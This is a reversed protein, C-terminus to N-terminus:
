RVLGDSVLAAPRAGGLRGHLDYAAAETLSAVYDVVARLRVQAQDYPEAQGTADHQAVRVYSLLRAPLERERRRARKARKAADEVLAPDNGAVWDSLWTVLDRVVRRQGQQTAALAPHEIVFFWTLQKLVEVLMRSGANEQLQGGPGVTLGEQLVSVASSIFRHLALRDGDTDQYPLEPMLLALTRLRERAVTPHFDVEGKANIEACAFDWFEDFVQSKRDSAGAGLAIEHLPILGVRFFDEIDHVAYTVDDAHDMVEAELSRFRGAPVVALASQMVERETEYAGWKRSYYGAAHAPAGRKIHEGKCWPYKLTAALVALTLDLGLHDPANSDSTGPKRVALKAVIRFSQANGEFSDPLRLTDPDATSRSLINQLEDEAIHGFPPHGLDHAAAAATAVDPDLGGAKTIVESKTTHLLYQATRRAVQEVKLTHTLRNHVMPQEGAPLVQTVGSLRRYASAYLIRDLDRQPPTRWAEGLRGSLRDYRASV